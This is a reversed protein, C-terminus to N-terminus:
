SLNFKMNIISDQLPLQIKLHMQGEEEDGGGIGQRHDTVGSGM